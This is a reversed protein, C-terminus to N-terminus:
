LAIHIVVEIVHPNDQINYTIGTESTIAELQSALVSSRRRSHHPSKSLNQSRCIERELKDHIHQSCGWPSGLRM